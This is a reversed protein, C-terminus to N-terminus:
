PLIESSRTFISPLTRRSFLYDFTDSRVDVGISLLRSHLQVMRHKSATWLNLAVRTDRGQTERRDYIATCKSTTALILNASLKLTSMRVTAFLFSDECGKVEEGDPEDQDTRYDDQAVVFGLYSM